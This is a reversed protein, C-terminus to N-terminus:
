SAKGTQGLPGTRHVQLTLHQFGALRATELIRQLLDYRMTKDGQIALPVDVSQDAAIHKAQRISDATQKLPAFLAPVLLPQAANDSQAQAAEQASMLRQGKFSIDAPASGVGLTLQELAPSGVKSDPLSIGQLVPVLEGVVATTLAFFVIAVLTDVLPVLNLQVFRFKAFQARRRSERMARGRGFARDIPAHGPTGTGGNGITSAM